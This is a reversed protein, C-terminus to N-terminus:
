KAEPFPIVNKGVWDKRLPHGEDWDDPLLFRKLNPHGKFNVGFLEWAEREYWDAAPWVEKVTEVEAKDYPLVTKYFIRHKMRYSCINYVIEFHEKTDVASLSMLFNLMLKTDDHIFTSFSVIDKPQVQFYPETMDNEILEVKGSFNEQIYAILEEKTM